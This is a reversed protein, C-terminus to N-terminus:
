KNDSYEGLHRNEAQLLENVDNLFHLYNFKIKKLAFNQSCFNCFQGRLPKTQKENERLKIPKKLCAKFDSQNNQTLTGKENVQFFTRNLVLFLAIQIPLWMIELAIQFLYARTFKKWSSWFFFGLFIM